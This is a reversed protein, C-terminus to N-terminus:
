ERWAMAMALVIILCAIVYCILFASTLEIIISIGNWVPTFKLFGDLNMRGLAFFIVPIIMVYNVFLWANQKNSKVHRINGPAKQKKIWRSIGDAFTSNSPFHDAFLHTTYGALFGSVPIMLPLYIIPCVLIAWTGAVVPILSSHMFPDRHYQIGVYVDFDPFIGGAVAALYGVIVFLFTPVSPMSVISSYGATGLIIFYAAARTALVLRKKTKKGPVVVDTGAEKRSAKYIMALANSADNLIFSAIMLIALLVYWYWRLDLYDLVATNVFTITSFVAISWFVHERGNM